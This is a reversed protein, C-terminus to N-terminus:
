VTGVPGEGGLVLRRDAEGFERVDFGWHDDGAHIWAAVWVLEPVERFFAWDRDAVSTASDSLVGQPRDAHQRGDHAISLVSNTANSYDVM